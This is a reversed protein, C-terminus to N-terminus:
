QFQFYSVRHHFERLNMKKTFRLTILTEHVYTVLSRLCVNRSQLIAPVIFRSTHLKRPEEETTFNYWLPQMMYIYIHTLFYVIPLFTRRNNDRFREGSLNCSYENCTPFGKRPTLNSSSLFDWIDLLGLVNGEIWWINVRSNFPPISHLSVCTRSLIKMGTNRKM